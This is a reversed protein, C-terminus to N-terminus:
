ELIELSAQLHTILPLWKQQREAHLVPWGPLQLPERAASSWIPNPFHPDDSCRPIVHWHLHPVQNGLSALNIKDPVMIHRIAQEVKFVVQMLHTQDASSLDTMEKVHTNWVVRCFGPYNEDEIQIVRLSENRWILKGGESACLTCPTANM